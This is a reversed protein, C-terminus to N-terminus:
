TWWLQVLTEGSQLRCVGSWGTRVGEIMGVDIEWGTEDNSAWGREGMGVFRALLPVFLIEVWSITM